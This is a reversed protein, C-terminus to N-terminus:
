WLLTFHKSVKKIFMLVGMGEKEWNDRILHVMEADYKLDKDKEKMLDEKNRKALRRM